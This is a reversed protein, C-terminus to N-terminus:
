TKRGNRDMVAVPKHIEVVHLIVLARVVRERDAESLTELVAQIRNTANIRAALETETALDEIM